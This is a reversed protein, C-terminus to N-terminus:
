YKLAVHAPCTGTANQWKLKGDSGFCYITGSNSYDGADTLYVDHTTPNIFLGYLASLQTGDTIFETASIDRTNLDIINYSYTYSYTTYNWEANYTYASDGVFCMGTAGINLTDVVNDTRSDIVYLNSGVDYYNGRSSVYIGGKGDPRVHRLNLGVEINKSLTFSALDIVSVRNDYSSRIGGSNAVYLKGNAVAMEEPQYGVTVSDKELTVIHFRYVAGLADPNGWSGDVFSSVYAYDGDFCIARGNPIDIDTIHHASDATMISVKHSGNMVAYLRDKYIELDNGTDGLEKVVSPNRTAFINTYYIGSEADFYDLTSNNRGLQGENLLYFGKVASQTGDSVQTGDGGIIENDDDNRCSSMIALLYLASLFITKKM